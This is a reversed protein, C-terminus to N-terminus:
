LGLVAKVENIRSRSVPVSTLSSITDFLCKGNDKNRTFGQVHKINVLFSRHTQIFNDPLKSHAVSISWSCFFRGAPTHLLTYHGEAQVAAIDEETLFTIQNDKEVPVRVTNQPTPALPSTKNELDVVDMVPPDEYAGDSHSAAVTIDPQPVQQAISVEPVLFTTATLLFAACITFASIIVLFALEGNDLAMVIPEEVPLIAFNTLYLGLYHVLSVSLGFITAGLIINFRARQKYAAWIALIGTLPGILVVFIQNTYDFVPLCGQIGLIGIYHMTVIGYGLFCGSIITNRPNRSGFHIILLSTCTMLIAILVSSLTWLPDYYISVPLQLALFAVFHMSWIGGGLVIAAMGISLKKKNNSLESIGNTLALGTFASLIAILISAMVLPLDYTYTLM